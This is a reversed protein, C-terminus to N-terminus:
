RPLVVPLDTKNAPSPPLDCYIEKNSEVKGLILIEDTEDRLIQQEIKIGKRILQKDM